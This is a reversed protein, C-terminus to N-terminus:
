QKLNCLHHRRDLLQRNGSREAHQSRFGIDYSTIKTLRHVCVSKPPINLIVWIKSRQSSAFLICILCGQTIGWVINPVFFNSVFLVVFFCSFKLVPLTFNKRFISTLFSFASEHSITILVFIANALARSIKAALACCRTEPWYGM